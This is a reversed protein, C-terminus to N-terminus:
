QRTLTSKTATISASSRGQSGTIKAAELAWIATFISLFIIAQRKGLGFKHFTKLLHQEAKESGKQTFLDQAQTLLKRCKEADLLPLLQVHEAKLNNGSMARLTRNKYCDLILHMRSDTSTNSIAYSVTLDLKWIWRPAIHVTHVNRFNCLLTPALSWRCM